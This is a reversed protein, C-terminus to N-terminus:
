LAEGKARRAAAAARRKARARDEDTFYLMLILILFSPIGSAPVALVFFWLPADFHIGLAVALLYVGVSLLMVLEHIM